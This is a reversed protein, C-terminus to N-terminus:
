EPLGPRPQYAGEPITWTPKGAAARESNIREICSRCIPQRPGDPSPWPHSPVLQPDFLFVTGCTLCPGTAYHHPEDTM